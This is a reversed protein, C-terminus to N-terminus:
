RWVLKGRQSIADAIGDCQRAADLQLSSAGKNLRPARVSGTRPVGARRRARALRASAQDAKQGCLLGSTQVEATAHHFFAAM